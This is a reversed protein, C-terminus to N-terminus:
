GLGVEALFTLVTVNYERPQELATPHGTPFVKLQSGRIAEQTAKAAAPGSSPDHEGAIILTPCTIKSLNPPTTSRVMRQMVRLYAEADNELLISRYRRFTEPNRRAFGPSFIHDVRDKVVAEMGEKKMAEILTQRRAEMQRMEEESRSVTGRSNSLILAKVMEPHTLTFELAIMGGMSFGLLITESINLAKLLAYLDEVWLETTLEGEPLETQGHGRVDYTLMRYRQSFAPVQNYWAKLNDGSGHIMTFCRGSGSLEYNMSIGNAEIKM